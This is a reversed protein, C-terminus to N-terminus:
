GALLAPNITVTPISTGPAPPSVAIGSIVACASRVFSSSAGKALVPQGALDALKVVTPGAACVLQGDALITSATSVQAATCGALAVLSALVIPRM